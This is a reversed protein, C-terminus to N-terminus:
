CFTSCWPSSFLWPLIEMGNDFVIVIHFLNRGGSEWVDLMPLPDDRRDDDAPPEAFLSEERLIDALLHPQSIYARITEADGNRAADFADDLSIM